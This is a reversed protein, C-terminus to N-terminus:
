VGKSTVLSPTWFRRARAAQPLATRLNIIIIPEPEPEPRPVSNNSVSQAKRVKGACLMCVFADTPIFLPDIDKGIIAWTALKNKLKMKSLPAKNKNGVQRYV